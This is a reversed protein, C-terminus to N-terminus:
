LELPKPQQAQHPHEPGAYVKLKKLLQRGLRNHPLMGRVAKMIVEEPKRALLDGAKEGKIGGPYGSHRYYVKKNLKDGTLKVRAANICVVFAGTDVHPTFVPRDKGRLLMAIRSAARGLVKGDLDVVYWPRDVEGKKAHYTKMELVTRERVERPIRSGGFINPKCRGTLM